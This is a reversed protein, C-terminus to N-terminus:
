RKTETPRCYFNLQAQAARISPKENYMDAVEQCVAAGDFIGVRFTSGAPLTAERTYVKFLDYPETFPKEGGATAGGRECSFALIALVIAVRKM